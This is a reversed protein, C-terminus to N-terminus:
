RPGKSQTGLTLKLMIPGESSVLMKFADPTNGISRAVNVNIRFDNGVGDKIHQGLGDEAEPKEEGMIGHGLLYGQAGNNSVRALGKSPRGGNFAEPGVTHGLVTGNANTVIVLTRLCM